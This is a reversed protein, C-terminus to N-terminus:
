EPNNGVADPDDDASSVSRVVLQSDNDIDIVTTDTTGYFESDSPIEPTEKSNPVGEGLTEFAQQLQKVTLLEETGLARRFTDDDLQGDIYAEQAQRKFQEEERKETLYAHLARKILDTRSMDVIEAVADTQAVLSSDAVFQVRSTDKKSMDVTCHVCM